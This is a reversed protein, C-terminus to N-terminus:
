GEPATHDGDGLTRVMLVSDVWRGFKWGVAPLLGVRQFGCAAHLGISAANGSDGIVAVMQRFGGSECRAVLAPLLARGVGLGVASPAVYVSNECSFRYAPRTRYWNAYAYGLVGGDAGTAVLYPFGAALVSARRVGIEAVPPPELEFSALGHLVWHGYIAAIAAVDADMSDRVLVAGAM